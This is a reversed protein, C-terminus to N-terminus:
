QLIGMEMLLTQDFCFQLFIQHMTFNYKTDWTMNMNWQLNSELFHKPSPIFIHLTPPTNLPKSASFDTQCSDSSTRGKESINKIINNIFDPVKRTRTGGTDIKKKKKEIVTM